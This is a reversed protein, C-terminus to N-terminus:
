HSPGKFRAYFEWYFVQWSLGMLIAIVSSSMIGPSGYFFVNSTLDDWFTENYFRQQCIYRSISHLHAGHNEGKINTILRLVTEHITERNSAEESNPRYMECLDGVTLILHFHPARQLYSEGSHCLHGLFVSQQYNVAPETVPIVYPLM